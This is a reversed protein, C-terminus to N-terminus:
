RRPGHRMPRPNNRGGPITFVLPRGRRGFFPATPFTPFPTIPTSLFGSFPSSSFRGFRNFRGNSIGFGLNDFPSFSGWVYSLPIDEAHQPRSAFQAETLAMEARLAEARSRLYAEEQARMSRVQEVTREDIAAVERQREELSPM